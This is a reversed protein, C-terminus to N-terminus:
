ICTDYDKTQRKIPVFFTEGRVGIGSKHCKLICQTSSGCGVHLLVSIEFEPIFQM